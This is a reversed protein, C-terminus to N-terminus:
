KTNALVRNLLYGALIGIAFSKVPRKRVHASFEDVARRQSLYLKESSQGISQGILIAACAIKDAAEYVKPAVPAVVQALAAPVAPEVEEHADTPIDQKISGSTPFLLSEPLSQTTQM